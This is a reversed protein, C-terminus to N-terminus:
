RQGELARRLPNSLSAARVLASSQAIETFLPILIPARDTQPWRILLAGVQGFRVADSRCTKTRNPTAIKGCHYIYHPKGWRM